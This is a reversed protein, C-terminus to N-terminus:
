AFEYPYEDNGLLEYLNKGDRVKYAMMDDFSAFDRQKEEGVYMEWKGSSSSKIMGYTKGEIRFTVIENQLLEAKFWDFSTKM